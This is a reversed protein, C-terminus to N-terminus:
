GMVTACYRVTLSCQQAYVFPGCGPVDSLRRLAGDFSAYVNVYIFKIDKLLAIASTHLKSPVTPFQPLEFPHLPAM